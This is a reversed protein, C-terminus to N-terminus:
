VHRGSAFQPLHSLSQERRHVAETDPVTSLSGRHPGRPVSVTSRHVDCLSAERPLSGLLVDYYEKEDVTCYRDGVHNWLWDGSRDLPGINSLEIATARASCIKNGGIAGNGLHYSWYEPNFLQFIHGNRAIVFPVSVHYDNTTLTSLDGGLYGATFHLVIARKSTKNAYFYGSKPPKFRIVDLGQYGGKELQGSNGLHKITRQSMAM